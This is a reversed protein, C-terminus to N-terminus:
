PVSQLPSKLLMPSTLTGAPPSPDENCGQGEVVMEIASPM